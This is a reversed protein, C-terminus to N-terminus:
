RPQQGYVISQVVGGQFRVTAMLNGPGRDYLWEDMPVCPAGWGPTVRWPGGPGAVFLPACYSDQLMPPGCKHLVSLRSDGTSVGQGNCRLSEDARAPAAPATLGVVVTAALALMTAARPRWPAPCPRPLAPLPGALPM